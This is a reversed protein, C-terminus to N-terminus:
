DTLQRPQHLASLWSPFPTAQTWTTFGPCPSPRGHQDAAEQDPIKPRSPPSPTRGTRRSHVIYTGCLISHPTDQSRPSSVLCRHTRAQRAAARTLCRLRAPPPDCLVCPISPVALVPPLRTKHIQRTQGDRFSTPVIHHAHARAPVVRGCAWVGVCVGCDLYTIEHGPTLMPRGRLTWALFRSCCTSSPRTGAVLWGPGPPIALHAGHM